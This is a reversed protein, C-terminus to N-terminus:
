FLTFYERQEWDTVSTLFLEVESEKLTILYEVFEAGLAQAFVPDARLAALAEM